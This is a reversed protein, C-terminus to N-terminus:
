SVNEATLYKGLMTLVAEKLWVPEIIEVNPLWYLILPVIQNKHAAKCSLTIGNDHKHLLQQYPLLDRRLFYHAINSYIFLVVPKTSYISSKSLQLILDRIKGVVCVTG